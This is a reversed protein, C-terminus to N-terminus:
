LPDTPVLVILQPVVVPPASVIASSKLTDAPESITAIKICRLFKFKVPKVPVQGFLM